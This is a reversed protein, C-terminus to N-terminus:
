WWKLYKVLQGSVSVGADISLGTVGWARGASFSWGQSLDTFTSDIRKQFNM